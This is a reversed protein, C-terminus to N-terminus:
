KPRHGAYRARIATRRDESPPNDCVTAVVVVRTRLTTRSYGAVELQQYARETEMRASLRSARVRGVYPYVLGLLWGYSSITNPQLEQVRGCLWDDCLTQVTDSLRPRPGRADRLRSLRRYETLAAQETVFGSRRAQMRTGVRDRGLELRFGFLGTVPDRVIVDIDAM